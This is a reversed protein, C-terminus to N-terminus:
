HLSEERTSLIHNEYGRKYFVFGDDRPPTGPYSYFSDVIKSKILSAPDLSGDDNVFQWTVPFEVKTPTSYSTGVPQNNYRMTFSSYDYYWSMKPSQRIQRM